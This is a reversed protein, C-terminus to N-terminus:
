LWRDTGKPSGLAPTSVKRLIHMRGRSQLSRLIYDARSPRFLTRNRGLSVHSPKSVSPSVRPHQEIATSAVEVGDGAQVEADLLTERTVDSTMDAETIPKKVEPLKHATDEELPLGTQQRRSPSLEVLLHLKVSPSRHQENDPFSTSADEITEDYTLARTATPTPKPHYASADSVTQADTRTNDASSPRANPPSATFSKALESGSASASRALRTKAELEAVLKAVASERGPAHWDFPNEVNQAMQAATLSYASLDPHLRRREAHPVNSSSPRSPCARVAAKNPVTTSSSAKTGRSRATGGQGSKSTREAVKPAPGSKSPPSADFSAPTMACQSIRELWLLTRVADTAYHYSSPLRSPLPQRFSSPCDPRFSGRSKLQHCFASTPLRRCAVGSNQSVLASM